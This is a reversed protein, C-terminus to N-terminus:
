EELSIEEIEHDAIAQTQDGSEWTVRVTDGDKLHSDRHYSTSSDDDHYGYLHIRNEGIVNNHLVLDNEGFEGTEFKSTATILTIKDGATMENGLDYDWPTIQPADDRTSYVPFDDDEMYSAAYASKGGVTIEIDDTDVNEGSTHTIEVALAETENGQIDKFEIAKQEIQLQAQPPSESVSDGLGLTTSGIVAAIIVTVAVMLIVGIVPSVGSRDNRFGMIDVM